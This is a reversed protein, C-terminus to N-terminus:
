ESLLRSLQGNETVKGRIAYEAAAALDTYYSMIFTGLRSNLTLHNSHIPQM